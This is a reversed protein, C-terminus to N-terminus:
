QSMEGLGRGGGRCIEVELCSGKIMTEIAVDLAFPGLGFCERLMMRMFPSSPQVFDIGVM